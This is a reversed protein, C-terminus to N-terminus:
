STRASRPMRASSNARTVPESAGAGCFAGTAQRRHGGSGSQKGVVELSNMSPVVTSAEGTSWPVLLLSGTVGTVVGDRPGEGVKRSPVRVRDGVVAMHRITGRRPQAIGQSGLGRPGEAALCTGLEALSEAQALDHAEEIDGSYVYARRLLSPKAAAFFRDFDGAPSSGV